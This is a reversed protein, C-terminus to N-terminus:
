KGTPGRCQHCSPGLFNRAAREAAFCNAITKQFSRLLIKASQSGCPIVILSAHKQSDSSLKHLLIWCCCLPSHNWCTISRYSLARDCVLWSVAASNSDKPNVTYVCGGYEGRRAELSQASSFSHLLKCSALPEFIIFFHLLSDLLPHTTGGFSQNQWFIHFNDSYWFHHLSKPPLYVSCASTYDPYQVSGHDHVM